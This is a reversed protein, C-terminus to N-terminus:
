WAHKVISETWSRAPFDDGFMPRKSKSEEISVNRDFAAHFLLVPAKIKQANQLPSGERVHPGDGILQSVYFYGTSLRAEEKAMALDTM